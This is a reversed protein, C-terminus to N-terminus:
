IAPGKLLSDYRMRDGALELATQVQRDRGVSYRVTGADYFYRGALESELLEIIDSKQAALDRELSHSLGTKLKEIEISNAEYLNEERAASTLEELM